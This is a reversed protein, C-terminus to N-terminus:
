VYYLLNKKEGVVVISSLLNNHIAPLPYISPFLRPLMLVLRLALVGVGVGGGGGGGGWPSEPYSKVM